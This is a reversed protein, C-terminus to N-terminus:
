HLLEESFTEDSDRDAGRARDRQRQCGPSDGQGGHGCFRM